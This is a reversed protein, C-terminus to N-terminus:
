NRGKRRETLKRKGVRSKKAARVRCPQCYGCIRLLLHDAQFRADRLVQQPLQGLMALPYDWLRACGLCYLHAHPARGKVLEYLAGGEGVQVRQLVGRDLLLELTRYVTARSVTKGRRALSLLLDEATFHGKM